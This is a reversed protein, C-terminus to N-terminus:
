GVPLGKMAGSPDGDVDAIGAKVIEKFQPQFVFYLRVIASAEDKWDKADLPDPELDQRIQAGAGVAVAKQELEEQREEKGSYGSYGSVMTSDQQVFAHSKSRLASKFLRKGSTKEEVNIAGTKEESCFDLSYASPAHAEAAPASCSSTYVITTDPTTYHPVVVQGKTPYSGKCPQPLNWNQSVHLPSYFMPSDFMARTQHVVQERRKKPEFFAFGFAPVVENKGIVLSAIDRADDESFFFQRGTGDPQKWVDWWLVNPAAVYSQPPWRYGCEECFRDDGKFPKDHKPCNKSFQALSLGEIKQGTIPNMGKVSPLIATNLPDNDTWDFWLGWEVDVPCVYSGASRVWDKPCGPLM